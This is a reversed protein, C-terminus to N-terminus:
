FIPYYFVVGETCAHLQIKFRCKEQIKESISCANLLLLLLGCGLACSNPSEETLRYGVGTLLAKIYNEVATRLFMLRDRVVQQLEKEDMQAQLNLTRTYRDRGSDCM